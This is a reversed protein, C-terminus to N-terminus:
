EKIGAALYAASLIDAMREYGATNPHSVDGWYTTTYAGMETYMDVLHLFGRGYESRSQALASLATNYTIIAAPYSGNDIITSLFLHCTPNASYIDDLIQNLYIMSQAVSNPGASSSLQTTDNTGIHLFVVQPKFANMQVATRLRCEDTREGSLGCWQNGAGLAGAFDWGCSQPPHGLKTTIYSLLRSRFGGPNASNFGYTISDGVMMVRLPTYAM